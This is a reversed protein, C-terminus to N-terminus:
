VTDTEDDVFGERAHYRIGHMADLVDGCPKCIPVESGDSMKIYDPKRPLKNEKCIPCKRRFAADLGDIKISFPM